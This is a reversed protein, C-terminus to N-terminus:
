QDANVGIAVLVNALLMEEPASVTTEESSLAPLEIRERAWGRAQVTAWGLAIPSISYILHLGLPLEPPFWWLAPPGDGQSGPQADDGSRLAREGLCVGTPIADDLFM